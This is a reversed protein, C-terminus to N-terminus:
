HHKEKVHKITRTQLEEVTVDTLDEKDAKVHAESESALMENWGPANEMTESPKNEGEL